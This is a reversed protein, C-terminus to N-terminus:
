FKVGTRKNRKEPNGSNSWAKLAKVVFFLVGFAQVGTAVIFAIVVQTSPMGEILVYFVGYLFSVALMLIYVFVAFLSSLLPRDKMTM